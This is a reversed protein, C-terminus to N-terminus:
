NSLRMGIVVIQNKNHVIWTGTFKATKPLLRWLEGNRIEAAFHGTVGFTNDRDVIPIFVPESFFHSGEVAEVILKFHRGGSLAKVWHNATFLAL